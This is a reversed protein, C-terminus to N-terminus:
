KKNETKEPVPAVTAPAPVATPAPNNAKPADSPILASSEVTTETQESDPMVADPRAQKFIVYGLALNSAFFLTAVIATSRSLFNGSGRAGFITASAGSGFAAGMESGKGQQLLVLLVLMVCIIVHISLLLPYLV